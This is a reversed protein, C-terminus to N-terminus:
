IVRVSSFMGGLYGLQAHMARARGGRTTARAHHSRSLM